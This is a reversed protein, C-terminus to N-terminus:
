YEVIELLIRFGRSPHASENEPHYQRKFINIYYAPDNYSGGKTIGKEQVFESVNGAMNYLGYGNPKFELVNVTMRDLYVRTKRDSKKTDAPPILKLEGSISDRKINYQPIRLFNAQVEGESDRTQIPGGWPFVGNGLDGLAAYEWEKELPLRVRVKKYPNNESNNIENTVWQCFVEIQERSVNVVPYKAYAPHSYYYNEMPEYGDMKSFTKTWLTTDPLLKDLSDKSIDKKIGDIFFRWEDNTIECNYIRFARISVKSDSTEISPVTGSPIYIYNKFKKMFKMDKKNKEKPSQGLAISSILFTFFLLSTQITTKM